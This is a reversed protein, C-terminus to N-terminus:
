AAPGARGRGATASTRRPGTSGAAVAIRASGARRRSGPGRELLGHVVDGAREGGAVRRCAAGVQRRRRQRLAGDGGGGVAPPRPARCSIAALRSKCGRSTALSVAPRPDELEREWGSLASTRLLTSPDFLSIAARFMTQAQRRPAPRGRRSRARASAPGPTRRGTADAGPGRPRPVAGGADVGIRAGHDRAGALQRDAGAVAERELRAGVVRARREVAAAVHHTEPM